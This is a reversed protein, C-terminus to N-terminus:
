RLAWGALRHHEPRPGLHSRVLVFETASWAPGAYEALEARDAAVDAAPLRDGPRAVTLHPRFPRRDHPLRARRLERRVTTSLQRLRQTEGGVGVWLISFRGRGFRGGGALNLLPASDGAAARWASAARGLAEQAAPLRDDAVEGLFALTIHILHRDPVRVNVGRASATGIRLRAIRAALDDLAAAPPYLAVFLRM